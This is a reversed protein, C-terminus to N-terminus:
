RAALVTGIGTCWGKQTIFDSVPAHVTQIGGVTIVANPTGRIGTNITVTVIGGTVSGTIITNGARRIGTIYLVIALIYGTVHGTVITNGARYVGTIALEATLICGTIGETVITIVAVTNLGAIGNRATLVTSIGTCRWQHTIFGMFGTDVAQGITVAVVLYDAGRIGTHVAAALVRGTGTVITNGARHIGTIQM